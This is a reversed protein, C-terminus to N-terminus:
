KLIFGTSFQINETFQNKPLPLIYIRVFMFVYMCVCLVYMCVYMCVCIYM